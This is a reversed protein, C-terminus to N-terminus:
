ASTAAAGALHDVPTPFSPFASSAFARQQPAMFTSGKCRSPHPMHPRSGPLQFASQSCSSRFGFRKRHLRKPKCPGSDSRYARLGAPTLAPSDVTCSGVGVAFPRLYHDACGQGSPGHCIPFASKRHAWVHRRWMVALATHCSPSSVSTLWRRSRMRGRDTIALGDVM